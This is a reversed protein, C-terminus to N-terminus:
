CTIYFNHGIKVILTLRGTKVSQTAEVCNINNSKFKKKKNEKHKLIFHCLCFAGM